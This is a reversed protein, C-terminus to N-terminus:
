TYSIYSLFIFFCVPIAIMLIITIILSAISSKGIVIKEFETM